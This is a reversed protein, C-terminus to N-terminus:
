IYDVFQSSDSMAAVPDFGRGAGDDIKLGADIRDRVTAQDAEPIGLMGSIVRMPMEAGLDRVFDFGGAGVLPDLAGACFRRVREELAAVRRPTFVRGMLGRHLDHIPPDEFIFMGRPPTMGSRILELITGKASSFTRWDLSCSEVDAFRSVAFFDFRD